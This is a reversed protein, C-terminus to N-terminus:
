LQRGRRHLARRQGAPREARRKTQRTNPPNHTHRCPQRRRPADTSGLAGSAVCGGQAQAETLQPAELKRPIQFEEMTTTHPRERSRQTTHRRRARRCCELARARARAISPRVCPLERHARHTDRRGIASTRPAARRRAGQVANSSCRAAPAPSFLCSTQKKRQGSTKAGESRERAAQYLAARALRTENVQQKM